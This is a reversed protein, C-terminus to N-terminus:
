RGEEQRLAVGDLPVTSAMVARGTRQHIDWQAPLCVWVFPGELGECPGSLAVFDQSYVDSFDATFSLYSLPVGRRIVRMDEPVDDPAAPESVDVQEWRERIRRDVMEQPGEGPFVPDPPLVTGEPVEMERVESPAEEANGAGDRAQPGDGASVEASAGEPREESGVLSDTVAMGASARGRRLLGSVADKVLAGVPRVEHAQALPFKPPPVSPGGGLPAVIQPSLGTTASVLKAQFGWHAASVEWPSMIAPSMDLYSILYQASIVDVTVEGDTPAVGPVPVYLGPEVEANHVVLMGRVPIQMETRIGRVAWAVTRLTQGLDRAGRRTAHVIEGTNTRRVVGPDKASGFQKSDLVWGGSRALVVHDANGGRTAGPIVVDHIIRTWRGRKMGLLLLGTKREGAGGIKKIDIAADEQARAGLKREIESEDEFKRARRRLLFPIRRPPDPLTWAFQDKRLKIPLVSMARRGQLLYALSWGALFGCLIALSGPLVGSGFISVTFSGAIGAGAHFAVLAAERYLHMVNRTLVIGAVGIGIGVWAGQSSTTTATSVSFMSFLLTLKWPAPFFGRGFAWNGLVYIMALAPILVPHGSTAAMCYTSVAIVTLFLAMEIADSRKRAGGAPDLRKELEEEYWAYASSGAETLLNEVRLPFRSKRTM